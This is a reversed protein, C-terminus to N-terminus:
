RNGDPPASGCKWCAGFQAEIEEGCSRCKWTAQGRADPTESARIVELAREVQQDDLVWLESWCETAPIDGRAAGLFPTKVESAIGEAELVNRLNELEFPHPASHVRTM